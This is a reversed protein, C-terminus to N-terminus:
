VKRSPEMYLAREFDQASSLDHISADDENLKVATPVRRSTDLIKRLCVYCERVVHNIVLLNLMNFEAQKENLSGDDSISARQNISTIDSYCFFDSILQSPRALSGPSWNLNVDCALRCEANHRELLLQSPPLRMRSLPEQGMILVQPM